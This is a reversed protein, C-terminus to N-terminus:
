LFQVNRTYKRWNEGFFHVKGCVERDLLQEGKSNFVQVAARISTTGFM